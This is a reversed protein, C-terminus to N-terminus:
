GQQSGSSTAAAMAQGGAASISLGGLALVAAAALGTARARRRTSIVTTFPYSQKSMCEGVFKTVAGCPVTRDPGDLERRRRAQADRRGTTHTVPTVRSTNFRQVM